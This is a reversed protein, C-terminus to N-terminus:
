RKKRRSDADASDGSFIGGFLKGLGSRPKQTRIIENVKGAICGFYDRAVGPALMDSLQALAKEGHKRKACEEVIANDIAQNRKKAALDILVNWENNKKPTTMGLITSVLKTIYEPVSAFLQIIYSLEKTDMQSKFLKEILARIYDQKTEVPFGQPILTDYIRTFETRRCKDNLVDLAYLHASKSCRAEEPKEQQIILAASTSGKEGIVIRSDLAEYIEILNQGSLAQLKKVLKVFQEIEAPKTLARLRSNLVPMFLHELGVSRLKEFFEQMSIDSALISTDAEILLKVIFEAYGKTAKGAISLLIDPATIQRNQSLAKLIRQASKTDNDRACFKLGYDIIAKLDQATGLFTVCEIYILVFAIADSIGFRQLYTKYNQRTAPAVIYNAVVSAFESNKISEWFSFTREVDSKRFVQEAFAECVIKTLRETASSDEVVHATTQLWKIIHLAYANDLNEQLFRPLNDNIRKYLNKFWSCTFVRYKGLISLIKAMADVNPLSDSNGVAAYIDYLRLIESNPVNVDFTQL